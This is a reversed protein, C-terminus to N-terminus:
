KTQKDSLLYMESLALLFSLTSEAGENCNVRDSHLADKCGGSKSNYLSIGLDNRGLFWEFCTKASDKWFKGSTVLYAKHCASVMTYAEIPQQDFLAMKQGKRYFGNCGVARFYGQPTTQINLLWKLSRLGADIMSESGSWDGGCILAESLKGNAYSVINEFWPWEPSSNLYYLHYLSELLNLYTSKFLRDNKFRKLYEYIGTASFALARPSNLAKIEPLAKEMISSALQVISPDNSRGACFGLAWFARGQSDQSGVRELWNRNFSMFNRFCCQSKDFAHYLFALYRLSLEKIEVIGLNELLITLILARSNDDTCYGENFDPITYKAHQLIGTSDTLNKLHNFCFSPLYFTNNSVALPYRSNLVPKKCSHECFKIYKHLSEYLSYENQNLSFSKDQIKEQDFFGTDDYNKYFKLEQKLRISDPYYFHNSFYCEILNVNSNKTAYTINQIASSNEPIIVLGSLYDAFRNILTQQPESFLNASTHFTMIVPANIKRILSFISKTEDQFSEDEKYQFCIADFRCLNIFDAADQFSLLNKEDIELKIEDSYVYEGPKDSLAFAHCDIQPYLECISRYLNSTFAAILSERPIYSGIIAIKKLISNETM